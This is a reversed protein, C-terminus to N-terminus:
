DACDDGHVGSRRLLRYLGVRELLNPSAPIIAGLRFEPHDIFYRGVNDHRNGPGGRRTVESSLLVQSNEVGGCALVFVEAVVSFATGDSRVVEARRIASGDRGADLRVVTSGVSVTVNAAAFLEDRARLTFSDSPACQAM